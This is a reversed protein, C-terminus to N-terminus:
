SLDSLRRSVRDGVRSFFSRMATLAPLPDHWDFYDYRMPKLFTALFAMLAPLPQSVDSQGHLRFAQVTALFDGELYRMWQGTQYRNIRDIREGNAWQYLLYPFDVGARVAIEISASLRPNIEMLYPVGRDDRRFEVESYGELDIARVLREAQETIDEPLAISQRLVSVGGLAPHTRKAWQAFRAYFEGHAYLLSIAERRGSLFQQLLVTGGCETLEAVVRQAEERTTVLQCVLRKGRQGDWVWSESPKVVAPLGVERLRAAVDEPGALVVGRPVDIGLRAAVELTREKSIAIELAHEKALALRTQQEIRARHERLLAITGDSAPIVVGPETVTLVDLLYSLFTAREQEYEPAIYVHQCWRSSFTPVYKLKTLASRTDLAAVRKGRVGLSRVTALTQRLHADLLLADFQQGGRTRRGNLMKYVIPEITLTNAKGNHM